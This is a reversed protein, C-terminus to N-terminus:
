VKVFRKGDTQIEKDRVFYNGGYCSIRHNGYDSYRDHRGRINSVAAFLERNRKRSYFVGVGDRDFDYHVLYLANIFHTAQFTLIM